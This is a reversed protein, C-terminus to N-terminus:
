KKSSTGTYGLAAGTFDYDKAAATKELSGAHLGAALLALTRQRSREQLPTERALPTEGTLLTM